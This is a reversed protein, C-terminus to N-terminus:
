GAARAFGAALVRSPNYGRWFYQFPRGPMWAVLTGPAADPGFTKGLVGAMAEGVARAGDYKFAHLAGRVAPSWPYLRLVRDAGLDPLERLYAATLDTPAPEPVDADQLFVDRLFELLERM